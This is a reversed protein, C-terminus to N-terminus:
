FGGYIMPRITPDALRHCQMIGYVICAAARSLSNAGASAGALENLPKAAESHFLMPGLMRPMGETLTSERM